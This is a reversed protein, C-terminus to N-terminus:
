LGWRLKVLRVLQIKRHHENVFSSMILAANGSPSVRVRYLIEGNKLSGLALPGIVGKGEVYAFLESDSTEPSGRIFLAGAEDQKPSVSMDIHGSTLVERANTSKEIRAIGNIEGSDNVFSYWLYRKTVSPLIGLVYKRPREDDLGLVQIGQGEDEGYFFLLGSWKDFAPDSYTSHLVEGIVRKDQKPIMKATNPDPLRVIVTGDDFGIEAHLYQETWDISWVGVDPELKMLYFCDLKKKTESTYVCLDMSSDAANREAIIVKTGDPSWAAAGGGLEFQGFLSTRTIEVAESVGCFGCFLVYALNISGWFPWISKYRM